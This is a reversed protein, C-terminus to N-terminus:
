ATICSDKCIYTYLLLIKEFFSVFFPDYCQTHGMFSSCYYCNSSLYSRLTGKHQQMVVVLPKKEILENLTCCKKENNKNNGEEQLEEKRCFYYSGSLM